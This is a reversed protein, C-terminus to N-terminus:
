YDLQNNDCFKKLDKITEIGTEKLLMRVDIIYNM